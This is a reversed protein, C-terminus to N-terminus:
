GVVKYTKKEREIPSPIRFILRVSSSNLEGPSLHVASLNLQTQSVHVASACELEADGQGLTYFRAGTSGGVAAGCRPSNIAPSLSTLM